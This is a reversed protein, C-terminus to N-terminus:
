NLGALIILLLSDVATLGDPTETTPEQVDPNVQPIENALTTAPLETVETSVVLQGRCRPHYPPTQFNRGVLDEASMEQLQKLSQADQKPWPSLTKLDEPDTTRIATDLKQRADAVSFQKGHMIKCVPCTRRDLQESVRYTTVGVIEAEYVYGMGALRSAQLSAIIELKSNGTTGLIDEIIDEIQIAAKEIKVTDIGKAQQEFEDILSLAKDKVSQSSLDIMQKLQKIILTGEEPVKKTKYIETEKLPTLRNGGYMMSMTKFHILFKNLGKYSKAMSIGDVAKVAGAIDGKTLKNTIKKSQIAIHKKYKTTLKSVLTAELVLFAELKAM